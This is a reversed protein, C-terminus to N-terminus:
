SFFPQRKQDERLRMLAPIVTADSGKYDDVNDSDQDLVDFDLEFRVLFKDLFDEDIPDDEPDLISSADVGPPSFRLAVVPDFPLSGAGYRLDCGTQFEAARTWRAPKWFDGRSVRPHWNEHIDTRFTVYNKEDTRLCSSCENLLITPPGEDDVFFSLMVKAPTPYTESDANQEVEMKRARANAAVIEEIATIQHPAEIELVYAVFLWDPDEEPVGDFAVIKGEADLDCQEATSFAWKGSASYVDLLFTISKPMAVSRRFADLSPSPRVRLKEDRFLRLAQLFGTRGRPSVSTPVRQLSPIMSRTMCEWLAARNLVKERLAKDVACLLFIVKFSACVENTYHNLLTDLVARARTSSTRRPQRATAADM